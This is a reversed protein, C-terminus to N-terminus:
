LSALYAGLRVTSEIGLKKRINLRHSNITRISLSLLRAIEKSSINLKLLACVKLEMSSLSPYVQAIRTIFEDHTQEFHEEFVQWQQESVVNQQVERLLHQVLVTKGHRTHLLERLQKKVQKLFETKQVLHLSQAALVKTKHEVESALLESKRRYQEKETKEKGVAFKVQEAAIARQPQDGLVNEKINVYMRHYLLAKRADGLHEYDRSLAEAANFELQSNGVTRADELAKKHWYVAKKYDKKEGYVGGIYYFTFARPYISDLSKTLALARKYLRITEEYLGKQQLLVGLATLSYIEMSKNGVERLLVCAQQLYEEAEDYRGMEVYLSGLGHLTAAEGERNGTERRIALSSQFMGLAKEREGIMAYIVALNYYCQGLLVERVQMAELYEIARFLYQLAQPFNGQIKHMQGIANLARAFRLDDQQKEAISASETFVSLAQEYSATEKYVCGLQYLSEAVMGDNHLERFLEVARLLLELVETAAVRYLKAKGLYYSSLAIFERDQLGEALALAEEAYRGSRSQEVPYVLKSLQILLPLKDSPQTTVHLQQELQEIQKQVDQEKGNM